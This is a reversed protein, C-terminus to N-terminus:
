FYNANSLSKLLRSSLSNMHVHINYYSLHTEDVAADFNADAWLVGAAGLIAGPLQAPSSECRTVFTSVGKPRWNASKLM